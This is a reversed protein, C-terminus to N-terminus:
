FEFFAVGSGGGDFSREALGFAGDEELVVTVGNDEAVDPHNRFLFGMSKRQTIKLSAACVAFKLVGFWRSKVITTSVFHNTVRHIKWQILLSLNQCSAKYVGRQIM